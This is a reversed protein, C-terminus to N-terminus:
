HRGKQAKQSAKGKKNGRSLIGNAYDKEFQEKLAAAAMEFDLIVKISNKIDVRNELVRKCGDITKVCDQHGRYPDYHISKNGFIVSVMYLEGPVYATEVRAKFEVPTIETVVYGHCETMPIMVVDYLANPIVSYSLRKDLVCIKKPYPSDQRVGCYQGTKPNQSVFSIYAGTEDSCVFKLKTRIRVSKNTKEQEMFSDSYFNNAVM